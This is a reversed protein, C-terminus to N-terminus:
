NSELFDVTHNLMSIATSGALGGEGSLLKFFRERLSMEVATTALERQWQRHWLARGRRRSGPDATHLTWCEPVCQLVGYKHLYLLLM